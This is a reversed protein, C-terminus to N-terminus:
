LIRLRWTQRCLHSTNAQEGGSETRSYTCRLATTSHGTVAPKVGELRAYVQAALQEADHRSRGDVVIAIDVDADRPGGDKAQGEGLEIEEVIVVAPAEDADDESAIDPAIGDWIPVALGDFVVGGDARLLALVALRLAPTPDTAM